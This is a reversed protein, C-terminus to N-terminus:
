IFERIAANIRDLAGLTLPAPDEKQEIEAFRRRFEAKVEETEKTSAAAIEDIKKQLNSLCRRLAEREDAAKKPDFVEAEGRSNVYVRTEDTVPRCWGFCCCWNCSNNLEISIDRAKPSVSVAAM